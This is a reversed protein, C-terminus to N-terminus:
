AGICKCVPIELRVGICKQMLDETGNGAQGVAFMTGVINVSADLIRQISTRYGKQASVTHDAYPLVQLIGDADQFRRFIIGFGNEDPIMPLSSKWFTATM